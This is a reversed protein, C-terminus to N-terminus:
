RQNGKSLESIKLVPFKRSDSLAMELAGIIDAHTEDSGCVFKTPNKTWGDVIREDNYYVEHLGYWRNEPNLDEDHYIIRYNWMSMTDM